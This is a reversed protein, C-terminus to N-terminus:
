KKVAKVLLFDPKHFLDAYGPYKELIEVTPLTETVSEISFGEQVLVNMITSFTRHYKRVGDVFWSTEREREREYDM